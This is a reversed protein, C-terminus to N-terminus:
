YIGLSESTYAHVFIKAFTFYSFFSVGLPIMKTKKKKKKKKEKKDM